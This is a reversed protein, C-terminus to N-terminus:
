PATSHPPMDLLPQHPIEAKAPRILTDPGPLEHVQGGGASSGNLAQNLSDGPERFAVIPPLSLKTEPVYPQSLAEVIVRSKSLRESSENAAKLLSPWILLQSAAKAGEKSEWNFIFLSPQYFLKIGTHAASRFLAKLNSRRRDANQTRNVWPAFATECLQVVEDITKALRKNYKADETVDSRLYSCL